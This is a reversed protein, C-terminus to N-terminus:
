DQILEVVVMLANDGARYRVKTARTFGSLRKSTRAFQLANRSATETYLVKKLERIANMDDKRRAKTVLKEAASKLAKAKAQTTQLSGHEFFSTLLNRMLAKRQDSPRGLIAKKNRHRM